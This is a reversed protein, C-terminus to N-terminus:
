HKQQRRLMPVNAKGLAHECGKCVYFGEEDRYLLESVTHHMYCIGCRTSDQQSAVQRDQAFFEKLSAILKELDLSGAYNRGTTVIPLMGTDNSARVERRNIFSSGNSNGAGLGNDSGPTYQM